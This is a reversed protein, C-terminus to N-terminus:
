PPDPGTSPSPCARRSRAAPSWSRAIGASSSSASGWGRGTSRVVLYTEIGDSLTLWEQGAALRLVGLAVQTGVFVTGLPVAALLPSRYVVALLGIAVLVAWRGIEVASHEAARSMDRGVTATGSTELSLGPPVLGEGFLNGPRGVDPGSQAVVTEVRRITPWNRREYFSGTFEVVVLTARGDESDLLNGIYQDTATRVRRVVSDHPPEGNLGVVAEIRPKLVTEVFERDESLLGDGSRLRRAVVFV